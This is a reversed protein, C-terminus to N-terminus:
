KARQKLADRATGADSWPMKQGAVMRVSEHGMGTIIVADRPRAETIAKAIAEARDAIEITKNEGGAAKVGEMIAGRITAPDESYPEEDTVIVRDAITAAIEGMIPRKTKDRDGTAGFVIWLKGKTLHRMTELANQLADPTHAYDVIVEFRQGEDIREMRGPVSPLSQLGKSIQEPELQLYYGVAAAATANYVNFKGPLNTHFALEHTGEFQVKVDSGQPGMDAEVIRATSDKAAGYTVKREVANFQNFYDFWEDDRVCVLVELVPQALVEVRFADGVGVFLLPYALM